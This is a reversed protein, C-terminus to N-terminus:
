TLKTTLADALANRDGKRWAEVLLKGKPTLHVSYIYVHDFNSFYRAHFVALGASILNSFKLIGDGSLRLRDDTLKYLFILNDIAERDFANNLSILMGKWTYIADKPIVGKHHLDHCIGCLAILNSKENGGKESVKVIHHIDIGLINRCTPNACKYGAEMLIYQQTEIPVADRKTKSKVKRIKIKKRM